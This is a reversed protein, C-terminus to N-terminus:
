SDLIAERLLEVLRAQEEVMEPYGSKAISSTFKFAQWSVDDTAKWKGSFLVDGSETGHFREVNLEIHISRGEGTSDELLRTIGDEIDEGWKHYNARRHSGDEIELVLDRHDIYDSIEIRDITIMQDSVISANNTLLYNSTDPVTSCGSFGILIVLSLLARDVRKILRFNFGTLVKYVTVRSAASLLFIFIIKPEWVKTESDAYGHDSLQKLFDDKEM